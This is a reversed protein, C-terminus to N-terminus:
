ISREEAIVPALALVAFGVAFAIFVGLNGGRGGLVNPERGFQVLVQIACAAFGAAALLVLGRARLWTGVLALAGLALTLIAGLPSFQLLKGWPLDDSTGFLMAGPDVTPPNAETFGVDRAKILAVVGLLVAVTSLVFLARRARGSVIGEGDM